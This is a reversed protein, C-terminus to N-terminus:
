WYHIGNYQDLNGFANLFLPFESFNEILFDTVTMWLDEVTPMFEPAIINFGYKKKNIKM